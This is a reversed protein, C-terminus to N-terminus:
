DSDMNRQSNANLYLDDHSEHTGNGYQDFDRHVGTTHYSHGAEHYLGYQDSWGRWCDVHRDYSLADVEFPVNQEHAVETNKRVGELCGFTM